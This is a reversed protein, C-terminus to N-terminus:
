QEIIETRLKKEAYDLKRQLRLEAKRAKKARAKELLACVAANHLMWAYVRKLEASYHRHTGLAWMELVDGAKLRVVLKKDKDLGFQGGLVNKTCRTVQASVTKTQPNGDSDLVPVLKGARKTRVAITKQKGIEIM